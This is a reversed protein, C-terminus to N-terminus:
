LFHPSNGSISEPHLIIKRENKLWARCYQAQDSKVGELADSLNSITSAVKKRIEAGIYESHVESYLMLSFTYVELADPDERWASLDVSFDVSEIPADFRYHLAYLQDFKEGGDKAMLTPYIARALKLYKGTHADADVIHRSTEELMKRSDRMLRVLHRAESQSNNWLRMGFKRAANWNVRGNLDFTLKCVYPSALQKPHMRELMREVVDIENGDQDTMRCAIERRMRHLALELNTLQEVTRVEDLQKSCTNLISNRLPNKTCLLRIPATPDRSFIARPALMSVLQHLRDGSPDLSM